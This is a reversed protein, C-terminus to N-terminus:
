RPIKKENNSNKSSDDNIIKEETSLRQYGMEILQANICDVIFQQKEIIDVQDEIAIKQCADTLSNITDIPPTLNNASVLSSFGSTTLLSIILLAKKM